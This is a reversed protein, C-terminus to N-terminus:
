SWVMWHEGHPQHRGSVLVLSPALPSSGQRESLAQQSDTSHKLSWGQWAPWHECSWLTMNYYIECCLFYFGPSNLYCLWTGVACTLYFWIQCHWYDVASHWRGDGGWPKFVTVCVSANQTDSVELLWHNVWDLSCDKLLALASSSVAESIKLSSTLLWLTPFHSLCHFMFELRQRKAKVTIGEPSSQWWWLPRPYFDSLRELSWKRKRYYKLIIGARSVM